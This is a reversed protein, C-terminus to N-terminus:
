GTGARSSRRAARQHEEGAMNEPKTETVLLYFLVAVICSITADTIFLSLFSRNAMFGGITPGIIWAMNGVVRMIGFGEQRQKEDLIDAIMANHAPGAIDSLFGILIALPLLVLYNSIFGLILTSLASAVLGFIILNRRGFKDTLAGGVFEGVLAFISYIGLVIGAETM